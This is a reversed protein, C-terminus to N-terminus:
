GTSGAYKQVCPTCFHRIQDDASIQFSRSARAQSAAINGANVNTLEQPGTRPAFPFLRARRVHADRVWRSDYLNAAHHRHPLSLTHCGQKVSQNQNVPFVCRCCTRFTDMVSTCQERHASTLRFEVEAVFQGDAHRMYGPRGHQSRWRRRSRTLSLGGTLSLSM